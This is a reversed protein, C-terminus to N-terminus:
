ETGDKTLVARESLSMVILVLSICKGFLLVAYTASLSVSGLRHLTFVTTMVVLFAACVGIFMYKNFSVAARHQGHKHKWVASVSLFAISGGLDFLQPPWVISILFALLYNRLLEGNIAPNPNDQFVYAFVVFYRVMLLMIVLGCLWLKEQRFPLLRGPKETMKSTKVLIIAGRITMVMIYLSALGWLIMALTTM